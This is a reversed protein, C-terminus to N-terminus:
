MAAKGYGNKLNVFDGEVSSQEVTKVIFVCLFIFILVVNTLIQLKVVQENADHTAQEQCNLDVSNECSKDLVTEKVPADIVVVEPPQVTDAVVPVQQQEPEPENGMEEAQEVVDVTLVFTGGGNNANENSNRSRAEHNAELWEELDVNRGEGNGAAAAVQLEELEIAEEVVVGGGGEARAGAGAEALGRPGIGNVPLVMRQSRRLTQRRRRDRQWHEAPFDVRTNWWNALRRRAMELDAM